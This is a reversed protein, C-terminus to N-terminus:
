KSWAEREDGSEEEGCRYGLLIIPFLGDGGAVAPM